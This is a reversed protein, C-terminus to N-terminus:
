REGAARAEAPHQHLQQGGRERHGRVRQREEARREEQALDARGLRSPSPDTVAPARNMALEARTRADSIAAAVSL